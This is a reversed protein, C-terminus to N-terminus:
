GEGHSIAAEIAADLKREREGPSAGIVNLHGVKRGPRPSKGYLHLHVGPLRLAEAAPPVGGVLNVMGAFGRPEPRGLPWGLVARLHNEFQCTFAGDQSWHGSNHVRPAMENALLGKSTQFFEVALVGVYNLDDALREVLRVAELQLRADVGRAPARSVRLIGDEHHNEVLPYAISTGDHERVLLLSVEREFRVFRELLLPVGGVADWAAGADDRSRIVVQGKGDYGMRRTKLVAPLGLEEMARNLSARSDVAQWPVTPIGLRGFTEKELKRDQATELAEPPPWVPTHEAIRRATTVPVNEFEYTVLDLGRAFRDVDDPENWHGRVVEGLDAVPPDDGPDLFRFRLGLPIGALALMRGLQGGGIIGM